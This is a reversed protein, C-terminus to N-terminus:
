WGVASGAVPLPRRRCSPRCRGSFDCCDGQWGSLWCGAPAVRWVCSAVGRAREWSSFDAIWIRNPEAATFDQDLLDNARRADAAPITTRIKKGRRVGTRGVARMCRDVTCEALEGFGNRRLYATM